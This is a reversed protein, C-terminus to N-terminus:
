VKPARGEVSLRRALQTRSRVGLKAYAHSLHVEVTHVGVFLAQAIEKNSLGEAALEAARREAPTLEGAPGPRRASVRALEGRAEEAWGESGIEDFAAAGQELSGRAAGQKRLRRQARGLIMLSRARDFRLGLQGYSAAAEALGAAAEEYHSKSALLVLAGCRRATALGWPHEQAVALQRLRETLARAEDLEDLQVLAEVLDPAVPFVGPEDVGERRTHGWVSRLSEAARAPEHALLAAIGRARLGELLDWRLGRRESEAIAAAAWREAEEPRGRGAALLARCREFAPGVMLERDGSQDWEDLLQAARQWEGARLELECSQLGLTAYSWAEGRAEARASLRGFVVRAQEVEGRWALREGVTREPSRLIPFARDSVERFRECVDDIAQGRLSRAWGLAHLVESEVERGAARAAPLVELAWSEADRIRRVCAVATYQSKRAMVTARLAPDGSSEALAAEIHHAFEDAHSAVFRGDALLLHARARASGAPLRDAEPALIDTARQPEGAALLYEALALLRAPREGSVPPTLRLAHEALEAADDVAGRASARGAAAAVTAALDSDARESAFALHRARLGEDAVVTALELHLERRERAPAHGAAAAALLPHSARVRDGEVVLLGTDLAKDIDAQDAIAPLQSLRLNASLAVALLLTRLRAPLRAVRTGLLEELVDSVPLEQDLRTPGREVITRGLELAFLPNGRASGVIRRLLWRPLTLGLQESLIRRTAGLSLPGVELHELGRPELAQELPSSGGSRRALLFGVEDDRLRRAAFTLADASPPDLWQLDDIAVVLPQRDALARLANLFGVAIAHPEARARTPAARLLAVELARLQPAPLGALAQESVGDFLDILVAFSLKAEAASPRAALVRLRRERALEIGAEWLTTKGIGPGGSFVFAGTSRDALFQRLGALELERGVIRADPARARERM